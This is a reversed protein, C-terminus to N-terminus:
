FLDRVGHEGYSGGRIKCRASGCHCPPQLDTVATERRVTREPTGRRRGYSDPVAGPWGGPALNEWMRWFSAKRTNRESHLSEMFGRVSPGGSGLYTPRSSVSVLTPISVPISVLISVPIPISVPISVSVPIPVLIPVSVLIPISVLRHASRIGDRSWSM